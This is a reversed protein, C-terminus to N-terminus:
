YKRYKVVKYIIFLNNTKVNMPHHFWHDDSCSGKGAAREISKNGIRTRFHIKINSIDTMGEQVFRNFGCRCVRWKPLGVDVRVLLATQKSNNAHRQDRIAM